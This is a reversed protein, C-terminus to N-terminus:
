EGAQQKLIEICPDGPLYGIFPSWAPAAEFSEVFGAEGPEPLPTPTSVPADLWAAIAAEDATPPAAPPADERALAAAREQQQANYADIAAEYDAAPETRPAGSGATNFAGAGSAPPPATPVPRQTASIVAATALPERLASYPIQFRNMMALAGLAAFGLCIFIITPMGSARKTSYVNGDSDVFAHPKGRPRTTMGESREETTGDQAAGGSDWAKEGADHLAPLTAL